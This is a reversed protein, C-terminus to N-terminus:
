KSTLPDIPVPKARQFAQMDASSWPFGRCSPARCLFFRHRLMETRRCNTCATAHWSTSSRDPAPQVQLRYFAEKDFFWCINVYLVSSEPRCLKCPRRPPGFLATFALSDVRVNQERNWPRDTLYATQHRFRVVAFPMSSQDCRGSLHLHRMIQRRNMREYFSRAPTFRGREHSFNYGSTRSSPCSTTIPRRRRSKRGGKVKALAGHVREFSTRRVPPAAWMSKVSGNLVARISSSPRGVFL